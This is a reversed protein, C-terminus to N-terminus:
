RLCKNCDDDCGDCPNDRSTGLGESEIDGWDICDDMVLTDETILKFKLFLDHIESNLDPSLWASFLLAYRPDLFEIIEGTGSSYDHSILKTRKSDDCMEPQFRFDIARRVRHFVDVMKKNPNGTAKSIDDLRVFGKADQRIEVNNLVLGALNNM